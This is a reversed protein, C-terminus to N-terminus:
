DEGEDDDDGFLSFAEVEERAAAKRTEAAKRAREARERIIKDAERELASRRAKEREEDTLEVAAAAESIYSARIGEPASAGVKIGDETYYHVAMGYVDEDRMAVCGERAENMDRVAGMIYRACEDISKTEKAYAEAFLPDSAARADLYTKLATEFPTM